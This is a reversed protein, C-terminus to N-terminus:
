CPAMDAWRGLESCMRVRGKGSLIIRLRGAPNAIVLHAATATNRLGALTLYGPASMELRIDPFPSTLRAMPPAMPAAPEDGDDFRATLSWGLGPKVAIRCTHNGWGACLQLRLLFDAIQRASQDLQAKHRYHQWTVGGSLAVAAMLALVLLMEILTFGRQNLNKM